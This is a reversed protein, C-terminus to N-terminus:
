DKAENGELSMVAKNSEQRMKKAQHNWMAIGYELHTRESARYLFLFVGKDM